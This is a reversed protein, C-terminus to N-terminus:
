CGLSCEPRVEARATGRAPGGLVGVAPVPVEVEVTAFRGGCDCRVLRADNAAATETAAAGAAREGRGLALMDAAALAAADAAADARARAVLAGGLRAAGLALVAALVVVAMLVVAMSGRESM